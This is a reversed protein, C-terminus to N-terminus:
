ESGSWWYGWFARRDESQDAWAASAGEAVYIKGKNVSGAHGDGYAVTNRDRNRRTAAYTLNAWFDAPDAYNPNYSTWNLFQYYGYPGGGTRPDQTTMMAAREALKEQGSINRGYHYYTPDGSVWYGFFGGGNLSL